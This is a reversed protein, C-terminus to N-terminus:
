AFDPGILDIRDTCFGDVGWGLIERAREADNVTYCFLGFGAAKIAGAQARTLHRQSAHIAVADVARAAQEWGAEV